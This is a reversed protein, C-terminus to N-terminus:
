VLALGSPLQCALSLRVLHADVSNYPDCGCFADYTKHMVYSRNPELSRVLAPSHRLAGIHSTIREISGLSAKNKQRPQKDPNSATRPPRCITAPMSGLACHANVM